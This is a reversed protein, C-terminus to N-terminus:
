RTFRPPAKALLSAYRQRLRQRLRPPLEALLREFQRRRLDRDRNQEGGDSKAVSGGDLRVPSEVTVTASVLTQPQAVVGLLPTDVYAGATVIMRKGDVQTEVDAALEGANAEVFDAVLAQIRAVPEGAAAVGAIAAADVASQLKGEANAIHAYDLALGAIAAVPLAALTFVIAFNGGRHRAFRAVTLAIRDFRV